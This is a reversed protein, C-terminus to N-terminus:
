CASTWSPRSWRAQARAQGGRVGARDLAAIVAVPAGTLPDASVDTVLGTILAPLEVRAAEDLTDLAENATETVAADMGRYDALRLVGDGRATEAAYLRSLTMQLLPLADGGKADAVLLAALSRGNQREFALPPSCAAVPRTVMEELEAVTPPVLDLTAGAERLGVLSEFSQFRAYADSRLAIVLYALSQRVLAELLAAFSAASAADTEVFLREVQDIALALRAPRVADFHADIRRKEAAKDLAARLAAVAVDADGALQRALLEETPFAGERLEPGLAEDSLLSKALALHPQPGPTVIATRWLDIEPITGPLILRPLLGARLLSSKGSGSAGIVLLFPARAADKDAAGAQRLREVAQTIALERGFFVSGRDAEFAALGPFPSGDLVRDWM